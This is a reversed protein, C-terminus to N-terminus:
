KEGEVGSLAVGLLISEDVGIAASNRPISESAKFYILDGALCAGSFIKFEKVELLVDRSRKQCRMMSKKLSSRSLVLLDLNRKLPVKAMTTNLM